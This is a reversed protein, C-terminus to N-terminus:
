AVEETDAEAETADEPKATFARPIPVNTAYDYKAMSDAKGANEILTRITAFKPKGILKEEAETRTIELAEVLADVQDVYSKYLDREAKTAGVGLLANSGVRLAYTRYGFMAFAHLHEGLLEGIEENTAPAALSVEAKREVKKENPKQGETVTKSINVIEVNM